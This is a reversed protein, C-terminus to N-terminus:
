TALVLSKLSNTVNALKRTSQKYIESQYWRIRSHDLGTTGTLDMELLCLKHNRRLLKFIEATTPFIRVSQCSIKPRQPPQQGSDLEQMWCRLVTVSYAIFHRIDCTYEDSQFLCNLVM